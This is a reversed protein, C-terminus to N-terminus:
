DLSQLIPCQISDICVLRYSLGHFETLKPEGLNLVPELGNEVVCAFLMNM